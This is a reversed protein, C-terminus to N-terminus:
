YTVRVLKEDFAAVCNNDVFDGSASIRKFFPLSGSNHSISDDIICETNNGGERQYFIAHLRIVSTERPVEFRTKLQTAGLGAVGGRIYIPMYPKGLFLSTGICSNVTSCPDSEQISANNSIKTEDHAVLIGSFITSEMNNNETVSKFNITTEAEVKNAVKFFIVDGISIDFKPAIKVEDRNSFLISAIGLGIISASLFTISLIKLRRIRFEISQIAINYQQAQTLNGTHVGFNRLMDSILEPRKEKPALEIERRRADAANKLILAVVCALFAILTLGSTVYKISSWPLM